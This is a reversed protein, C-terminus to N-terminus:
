KELPDESLAEEEEEVIIRPTILVFTHQDKEGLQKSVDVLLTQGDLVSKTIADTLQDNADMKTACQIRVSRRDASVVPTLHMRKADAENSRRFELPSDLQQGNFLTVKPSGLSAVNKNGKFAQLLFFTETDNLVPSTEDWPKDWLDNFTKQSMRFLRLECTVQVDQLRRLQILFDEIEEHVTRSQSVVLSLNTEFAAISGPGGVEDWTQPSITAHILDILTDFQPGTNDISRDKPEDLHVTKPVPVVLDAVYYTKAYIHEDAASNSTIKVVENRIEYKLRLPELILKLASAIRIPKALNITIPEDTTIGEAALGRADLLMNVGAAKSLREIVEKFPIKDHNLAIPTSLQRKIRELSAGDLDVRSMQDWAVEDDFSIAEEDKDAKPSLGGVRHFHHVDVYVVEVIDESREHKNPWGVKVHNTFYITCKFHTHHLQAPGVLPFVRPPDLYDAIKEKVIRVDKLKTEHLEPPGGEIPRKKKLVQMVEADTPVSECDKGDMLGHTIAYKKPAEPERILKFEPGPEFYHVDDKSRWPRLSQKYTRWFKSHMKEVEPHGPYREKAQRVVVEAEAFRSEDILANLREIISRISTDRADIDRVAAAPKVSYDIVKVGDVQVQGSESNWVIRKAVVEDVRGDPLKRKLRANGELITDDDCTIKDATLEFGEERSIVRAHGVLTITENDNAVIRDARMELEESVSLMANGLLEFNIDDNGKKGIRLIGSDAKIMVRVGDSEDSVLARCDDMQMEFRDKTERVNASKLVDIHAGIQKLRSHLRSRTKPDTKALEGFIGGNSSAVRILVGRSFDVYAFPDAPEEKAALKVDGKIGASHSVDSEFMLKGTRTSKTIEKADVKTARLLVLLSRTEDKVKATKLGGVLLTKGLPMEVSSDIQTKAVEPVQLAVTEDGGNTKIKTQEVGRINSLTMEYDLWVLNKGRLMPRLHMKWGSTIVCIQPEGDRMGVVFPRQTSIEVVASQGNFLTVKPAQLVNAKAHQGLKDLIEIRRDNELVELMVPLNKEVSMRATSSQKANKDPLPRDLPNARPPGTDEEPSIVTQPIVWNSSLSNILEPPAIITHMEILIQELGNQRIEDLARNLRAHDAKGQIAVLKNGSWYLISKRGEKSVIYNAEITKGDDGFDFDVGLREADQWQIGSASKVHEILFVKSHEEDLKLTSQIEKLLDAVRYTQRFVKSKDGSPSPQIASNRRKDARDRKKSKDKASAVFAAGPLMMSAMLIMALWCWWPTRKLSGQGLKMIRELRKSTVEVPRVGPFVPVPKLTQKLELVDILCRAYRAPDCGLEAVVEEDCCREAERTLMRNVLWVLPHFWWLAQALVQLLGVWLDGRRLHILEHALIPELEEPSKGDVIMKPLLLTPRFIGLLAPGTRGHTIVLRVKRRLRLKKALRKVVAELVEDRSWGARNISRLCYIWRITALGVMAATGALWCWLLGLLRAKPLTPNKEVKTSFQDVAPHQSKEVGSETSVMANVHPLPHPLAVPNHDRTEPSSFTALPEGLEVIVPKLETDAQAPADIPEASPEHESAEFHVWCFVGSPSTLLPPTLCKLLVVLWLVHALHAHKRAALRVISAVIVAVLTVQWLQAWALQLFENDM